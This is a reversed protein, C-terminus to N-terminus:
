IVLFVTNSESHMDSVLEARILYCQWDDHYKYVALYRGNSSNFYVSGETTGETKAKIIDNLAETDPFSTLKQGSGVTIFLLEGNEKAGLAMSHKRTFGKEAARSISELCAAEDGSFKYIEYQNGAQTYMEKLEKVLLQNTLSIVQKQNLLINIYNTAFNSFLLLCLFVGLIKVSIPIIPTNGVKQFLSPRESM